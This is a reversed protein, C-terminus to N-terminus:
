WNIEGGEDYRNRRGNFGGPPSMPNHRRNNISKNAYSRSSRSTSKSSSGKAM